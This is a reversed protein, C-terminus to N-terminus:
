ALIKRRMLGLGALVGGLLLVTSGGDPVSPPPPNQTVNATLSHILVNKGNIGSATVGIYYTSYASVDFSTNSSVTGLYTGLVGLTNSYYIKAFEGPQVSDFYLSDLTYGPTNLLLQVFQKPNIEHDSDAKMGLGTEGAGGNKAYLKSQVYIGSSNKAYGYATVSVGSETFTEVKGKAGTGNELFNWTIPTAQATLGLMVSGLISLLYTKKM